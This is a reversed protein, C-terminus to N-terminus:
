KGAVLSYVSATTTGIPATLPRISTENGITTSGKAKNTAAIREQTNHYCTRDESWVTEQRRRSTDDGVLPSIPRPDRWAKLRQRRLREEVAEAHADIASQRM